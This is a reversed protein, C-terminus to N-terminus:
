GRATRLLRIVDSLSKHAEITWLHDLLRQIARPSLKNRACQNFKEEVRSRSVVGARTAQDKLVIRVKTSEGTKRKSLVLDTRQMLAAIGRDKVKLDTYQALGAARDALAIAVAFPLSFKSQPSNKPRQYVLPLASRAPMTVEVRGVADSLTM